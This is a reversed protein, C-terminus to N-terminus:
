AVKVKSRQGKANVDSTDNTIVGSFKMIIRHHSCLWFPTVSLRVSTKSFFVFTNRHSYIFIRRSVWFWELSHLTGVPLVAPDSHSMLEWDCLGMSKCNRDPLLESCLLYNLSNFLWNHCPRVFPSFWECLQKTAALFLWRVAVILDLRGEFITVTHHFFVLIPPNIVNTQSYADNGWYKM